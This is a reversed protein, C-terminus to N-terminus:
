QGRSHMARWSSLFQKKNTIVETVKTNLGTGPNELTELNMLQQQQLHLPLVDQVMMWAQYYPQDCCFLWIVWEKKQSTIKRDWAPHSLTPASNYTCCYFLCWTFLYGSHHMQETGTWIAHSATAGRDSCMQSVSLQSLSRKKCHQEGPLRWSPRTSQSRGEWSSSKARASNRVMGASAAESSGRSVLGATWHMPHEEQRLTDAFKIFAPTVEEPDSELVSGQTNTGWRWLSRLGETVSM